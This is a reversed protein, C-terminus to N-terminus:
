RANRELKRRREELRQRLRPLNRKMWKVCEDITNFTKTVAFRIWPHNKLSTSPTILFVPKDMFEPLHYGIMDLWKFLGGCIFIEICTGFSGEITFAIIGDAKRILDLDGTVIDIYNRKLQLIFERVESPPMKKELEYYDAMKVEPRNERWSGDSNYFPNYCTIGLKQLAPMLVDRVVHRQSFTHALYFRPKYKRKRKRPM